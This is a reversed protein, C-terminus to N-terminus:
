AIYDHSCLVLICFKTARPVLPTASKLKWYRICHLYLASAICSVNTAVYPIYLKCMEVVSSLLWHNTVICVDICRPFLKDDLWIVSSNNHAHQKRHTHIDLCFVLEVLLLTFCMQAAIGFDICEELVFHWLQCLTSCVLREILIRDNGQWKWTMEEIDYGERGRVRLMAKNQTHCYGPHWIALDCYGPAWCSRYGIDKLHTKTTVISELLNVLKINQRRISM